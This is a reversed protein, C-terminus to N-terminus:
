KAVSTPLLPRWRKAMWADLRRSMLLTEDDPHIAVGIPRKSHRALALNAANSVRVSIAVLRTDAEFGALPLLRRKGTNTDTIGRLTEILDFGM